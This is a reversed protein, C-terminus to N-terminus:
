KKLRKWITPKQLTKYAKLAISLLLLSSATYADTAERKQQWDWDDFGNTVPPFFMNSETTVPKVPREVAEVVQRRLIARVAFPEVASRERLFRVGASDVATIKGRSVPAVLEGPERRLADALVSFLVVGEKGEAGGEVRLAKIDPLSVSSRKALIDSRYSASCFSNATIILAAFFANSCLEDLVSEISINRDVTRFYVRARLSM